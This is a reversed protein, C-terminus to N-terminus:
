GQGGDLALLRLIDDQVQLARERGIFVNLGQGVKDVLALVQEDSVRPGDVGVKKGLVETSARAMTDGVFPAIARQITELVGPTSLSSPITPPAGM